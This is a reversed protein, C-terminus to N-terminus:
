AVVTFGAPLTGRGTLARIVEPGDGVAAAIRALLAATEAVAAPPPEFPVGAASSLDLGHVVLELTRTPIWDRVRMGGIASTVLDDDGAAALASTAQGVLAGVDGLEAFSRAADESSEKQAVAIMEAPASRAAAWYGEASDVAIEEAPTGLVSPVQRLGSTVTHGVLLGISWDGLGPRSLDAPLRTALDAFSVAAARYSRRFDM